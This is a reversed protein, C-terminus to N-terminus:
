FRPHPRVRHAVHQEVASRLRISTRRRAPALRHHRLASRAAALQTAHQPPQPPRPPLDVRLPALGQAGVPGAWMPTMEKLIEPRETLGPMRSWVSARSDETTVNLGYRAFFPAAHMTFLYVRRAAHQRAYDLSVTVLRHGEGRGRLEPAVVVSRLVAAEGYIEVGACGAVRGGAELVWFSDLFEAIAMPPLWEAKLLSEIAPIDDSRALRHAVSAV